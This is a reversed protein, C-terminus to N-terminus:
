RDRKYREPRQVSGCLVCERAVVHPQLRWRGKVPTGPVVLVVKGTATPLGQRITMSKIKTSKAKAEFKFSVISNYTYKTIELKTEQDCDGNDDEVENYDGTNEAKGKLVYLKVGPFSSQKDDRLAKFFENLFDTSPPSTSTPSKRTQESRL